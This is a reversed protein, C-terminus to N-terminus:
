AGPLAQRLQEALDRHVALRDLGKGPSDAVDPVRARSGRGCATVAIATAAAVSGSLGKRPTAR